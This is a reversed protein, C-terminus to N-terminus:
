IGLKLPIEDSQTLVANTAPDQVVVRVSKMDGPMLMMGVSAETGSEVQLVGSEKDLTGAVAMGAKGVEEDGAILTVRLAIPGPAFLGGATVLRITFILNTIESPVHVLQVVRGADPRQASKMRVIVVPIVLEQLSFGGHHFSLDGGAKFVGIGTPFLFELDTDYGLEAGTVRVTGPPTAGGRGIWCRRHIDITDGGPSDTRMDEDKRISFQHGHDATIVFHEIGADALKRVARAINGIVREMAARAALDQVNEGLQDIEGSRVIVLPASKVSRRLEAVSRRLVDDLTLDRLGPVRAKLYRTREIISPM